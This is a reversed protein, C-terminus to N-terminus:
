RDAFEEFVPPPTTARGRTVDSVQLTTGVTVNVLNHGRTPMEAPRAAVLRCVTAAVAAGTAGRRHGGGPYVPM